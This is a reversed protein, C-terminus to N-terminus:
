GKVRRDAYLISRMDRKRPQEEMEDSNKCRKRGGAGGKTRLLSFALEHMAPLLLWRASKPLKARLEPHDFLSLALLPWCVLLLVSALPASSDRNNPPPGDAPPPPCLPQLCKKWPMTDDCFFTLRLDSPQSCGHWHTGCCMSISLCIRRMQPAPAVQMVM